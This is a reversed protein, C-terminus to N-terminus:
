GVKGRLHKSVARDGFWFAIATTNLYVVSLIIFGYLDTGGEAGKVLVLVRDMDGYTMNWWFVVTLGLLLLTLGPRMLARLADVWGPAKISMDHRYAMQFGAGESQAQVIKLENETEKDGKMMQRDLLDLEHKRQAGKELAESKQKLFGAGLSILTGVIGTAGGSVVMGFIDGLFGM